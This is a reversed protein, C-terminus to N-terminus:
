KVAGPFRVDEEFACIEREADAPAMSYRRQLVSALAPRSGGVSRLDEDSLMPWQTKLLPALADWDCQMETWNMAMEQQDNGTRGPTASM